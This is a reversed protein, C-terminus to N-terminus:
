KPITELNGDRYLRNNFFAGGQRVRAQFRVNRIGGPDSGTQLGQSLFCWPRRNFHGGHRHRQSVMDLCLSKFLKEMKLHRQRGIEM